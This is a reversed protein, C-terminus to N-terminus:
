LLFLHLYLYFNKPPNLLAIGILLVGLIFLLIKVIMPYNITALWNFIVGLSVTAMLSFGLVLLMDRRLNCYISNEFDKQINKSTHQLHEKLKQLDYSCAIHNNNM